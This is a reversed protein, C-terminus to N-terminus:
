AAFSDVKSLGRFRTLYHDSIAWRTKISTEAAGIPVDPVVARNHMLATRRGLQKGMGASRRGM